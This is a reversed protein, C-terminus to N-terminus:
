IKIEKPKQAIQAHETGTYLKLRKIMRAGLKNKPLMGKVAHRLVHKPDKSIMEKYVTTKQGGPYGSFRKYVKEEAKNGSITIKDCNTVVVGAGNDVNPTFDPRDKGMLLVAIQTAARGLIKGAVDVIYWDHSVENHKILKTKMIAIKRGNGTFIPLTFIVYEPPNTM